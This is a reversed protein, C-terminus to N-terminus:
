AANADLHRLVRRELALRAARLRVRVTAADLGMIRGAAAAAFGELARLMLVERLDFPLADVLALLTDGDLEAGLEEALEPLREYRADAPQRLLETRVAVVASADESLCTERLLWALWVATDPETRVGSAGNMAREVTREVVREAAAEDGTYRLALRWMLDVRARVEGALWRRPAGGGDVPTLRYPLLRLTETVSM